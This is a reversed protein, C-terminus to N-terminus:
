LMLAGTKKVELRPCLCMEPCRLMHFTEPFGRFPRCYVELGLNSAWRVQLRLVLETRKIKTFPLPGPPIGEAGFIRKLREQCPDVFCWKM